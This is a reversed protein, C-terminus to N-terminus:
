KKASAAVGRRYRIFAASQAVLLLLMLIALGAFFLRRSELAQFLLGHAVVVVLLLYASRQLRKWLAPGLTMLSKNNSIALLLLALL